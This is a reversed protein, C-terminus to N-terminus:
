VVDEFEFNIRYRKVRLNQIMKAAARTRPTADGCIIIGRVTDGGAVNDKVWSMYGGIQGIVDDGATGAKLEIVVFRADKDQCFLDLRGVDTILEELQYEPSARLGLEVLNLNRALFKQLDRELLSLGRDEPSRPLAPPLARPEGLDVWTQQNGLVQVLELFQGESLEEVTHRALPKKGRKEIPVAAVKGPPPMAEVDWEVDIRRGLEPAEPNASYVGEGVTPAWEDDRVRLARITGVPGIRWRLLFPIVRDGPSMEALRDRVWAWGQSETPGDFSYESPPWGVAVCKEHVWRSWLGGRVEPEPCIVIWYRPM